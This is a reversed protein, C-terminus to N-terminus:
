IIIQGANGQFVKLKLNQKEAHIKTLNFMKKNKILIWDIAVNSIKEYIQIRNTELNLEWDLKTTQFLKKVDVSIIALNNLDVKQDTCWKWFYHRTSNGLELELYTAHELYTWVTYEEKPDLKIQGTPKIGQELILPINHVDTYFFCNFINKSELYKIIQLTNRRRFHQFINRSKKAKHNKKNKNDDGDDPVYFFDIDEAKKEKKILKKLKKFNLNM